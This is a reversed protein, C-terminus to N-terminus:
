IKDEAIIKYRKEDLELCIDGEKASFEATVKNGNQSVKIDLADYSYATELFLTAFLNAAWEEDASVTLKNSPIKHLINEELGVGLPIPKSSGYAADSLFVPLSLRPTESDHSIKPYLIWAANGSDMRWVGGAMIGFSTDGGPSYILTTLPLSDGNNTYVEGCNAHRLTGAPLAFYVTYDTGDSMLVIDSLVSVAAEFNGEDKMRIEEPVVLLAWVGACVALVALIMIFAVASSTASDNKLATKDFVSAM